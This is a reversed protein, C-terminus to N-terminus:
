VTRKKKTQVQIYRTKNRQEYYQPYYSNLTNLVQTYEQHILSSTRGQEEALLKQQALKDLQTCLEERRQWINKIEM